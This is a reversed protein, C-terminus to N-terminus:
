SKNLQLYKTNHRRFGLSLTLWLISVEAELKSEPALYYFPFLPLSNWFSDYSGCLDAFIIKLEGIMNSYVYALSDYILAVKQPALLHCKRQLFTFKNM